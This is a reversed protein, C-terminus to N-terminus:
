SPGMSATRRGYKYSLREKDLAEARVDALSRNTRIAEHIMGVSVDPVWTKKKYPGDLALWKGHLPEGHQDYEVYEMETTVPNFSAVPINLPELRRWGEHHRDLLAETQLHKPKPGIGNHWDMEDLEMNALRLAERRAPDIVPKRRFAEHADVVFVYIFMILLAVGLIVLISVVM